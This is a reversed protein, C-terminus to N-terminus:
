FSTEIFYIYIQFHSIFQVLIVEPNLVSFKSWEMQVELHWWGVKEMASATAQKMTSVKTPRLLKFLVKFSVVETHKRMDWLKVAGDQGCSFLEYPNNTFCISM